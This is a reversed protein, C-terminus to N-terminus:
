VIYTVTLHKDWIRASNGPLPVNKRLLGVLVYLPVKKLGERIGPAEYVFRGGNEITHKKRLAELSFIDDQIYGDYCYSLNMSQPTTARVKHTCTMMMIMQLSPLPLSQGQGWGTNSRLLCHWKLAKIKSSMKTAPITEWVHMRLMYCFTLIHKLIIIVIITIVIIGTILIRSHYSISSASTKLSCCLSRQWKNRKESKKTPERLCGGEVVWSGRETGMVASYSYTWVSYFAM